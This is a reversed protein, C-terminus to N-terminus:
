GWFDAFLADVFQPEQYERLGLSQLLHQKDSAYVALWTADPARDEKEKARAYAVAWAVIANDAEGPIPIRDDPSQIPDLTPVYSFAIPVSSNVQPACFIVPADVPAGQSTIAYYITDASPDISDRARASRFSDHNYDLPKFELSANAGNVTLDVPEVMYIKHVNVPVGILRDSSAPYSVDTVNRILYHEQKLDVIDRWLDKVGAEIYGILEPDSWFRPQKEVLLNRVRTVIDKVQTAM